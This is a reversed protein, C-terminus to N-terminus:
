RKTQRGLALRIREIIGVLALTGGVLMVKIGQVRTLGISGPSITLAKAMSLGTLALARDSPPPPLSYLHYRSLEYFGGALRRRKIVLDKMRRRTSHQVAVSEAYNLQLGAKLIRSCFERDGGSKLSCDFAGVSDIVSRRVVLNATAAFGRTHVFHDQRLSIKCDYLEAATPNRSLPMEIKGGVAMLNPNTDFLALANSLWTQKPICDADTFAILEGHSQDIGKNRAAYSGPRPENLFRAFSYQNVIGEPSCASANDVVIVEFFAKKILQQNLAELCCHLGPNNNYVPIIVSFRLKSFGFHKPTDANM